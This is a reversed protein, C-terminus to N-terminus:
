GVFHSPRLQAQVKAANYRHVWDMMTILNRASRRVVPTASQGQTSRLCFRVATRVNALPMPKGNAKSIYVRKPSGTVPNQAANTSGTTGTTPPKLADSRKTWGYTKNEQTIRRVSWLLSSYSRLMLTRLSRVRNWQSNQTSPIYLM